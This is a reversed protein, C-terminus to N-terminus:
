TFFCVDWISSRKNGYASKSALFIPCTLSLTPNALVKEMVLKRSQPGLCIFLSKSKTIIRALRRVKPDEMVEEIVLIAYNIDM